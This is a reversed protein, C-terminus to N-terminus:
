RRNTLNSPTNSWVNWSQGGTTLSPSRWVEAGAGGARVTQQATGGAARHTHSSSPASRGGGSRIVVEEYILEGDNWIRGGVSARWFAIFLLILLILGILSFILIVWWPLGWFQHSSQCNDNDGM